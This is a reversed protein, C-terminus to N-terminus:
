TLASYWPVCDYCWFSLNTIDTWDSCTQDKKYKTLPIIDLDTSFYLYRQFMLNNFTPPKNEISLMELIVIFERELYWWVTCQNTDNQNWHISYLKGECFYWYCYWVLSVLAGHFRQTLYMMTISRCHDSRLCQRKCEREHVYNHLIRYQSSTINM